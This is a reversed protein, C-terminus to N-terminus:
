NLKKKYIDILYDLAAIIREKPTKQNFSSTIQDNIHVMSLGNLEFIERVPHQIKYHAQYNEACNVLTYDKKNKSKLRNLHGISCCQDKENTYIRACFQETKIKSLIKRADRLLLFNTLDTKM